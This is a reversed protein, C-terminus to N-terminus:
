GGSSAEPAEVVVTLATDCEADGATATADIMADVVIDAASGPTSEAGETDEAYLTITTDEALLLCADGSGDELAFDIRDGDVATVTGEYEAAEADESEEESAVSLATAVLATVVGETETALGMARVRAGAVLATADLLAGKNDFILAGDAVTVSVDQGSTADGDDDDSPMLTFAGAAADATLSGKVRAFGDRDGVDVLLADLGADALKGAVVVPTMDDIAAFEVPAADADFLVTGDTLTVRQCSDSPPNNAGEGTLRRVDCLDFATDGEPAALRTVTGSLFTIRAKQSDDPDDADFVEVFAVPRFRVMGSGTTTAQFSRRASIDIQVVLNGDETVEFPGRPNLDIKGGAPVDAMVSDVVNGDADLTNLTIDDVQLRIKTYSGTPVADSTGLLETVADLALLDITTVEDSIVEPADGGLLEISSVTLLVEDYADTPADGVTVAVSGTTSSSGTGTTAVADSGSGGGGCAVLLAALALLSTSRLTRGADSLLATPAGWSRTNRM